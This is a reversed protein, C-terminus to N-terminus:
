VVSKRDRNDIKSEAVANQITSLSLIAFAAGYLTKRVM